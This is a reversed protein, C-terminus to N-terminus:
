FPARSSERPPRIRRGSPPPFPLRSIGKKSNAFEPSCTSRIGSQYWRSRLVTCCAAIYLFSVGKSIPSKCGRAFGQLGQGIVQLQLLLLRNSDARRSEEKNSNAAFAHLRLCSDPDRRTSAVAVM